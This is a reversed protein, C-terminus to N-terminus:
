FKKWHMFALMQTFSRKGNFNERRNSGFAFDDRTETKLKPLFGREVLEAFKTCSTCLEMDFINEKPVGAKLLLSINAQALSLSYHWPSLQFLKKPLLRVSNKEISRFFNARKRDVNYCCDRIHPGLIFYIESPKSGFNKALLSIAELSIGTGKWGSHLVGFAKANKDYLFIPMCDAVLVAPVFNENTTIIGDAETETSFSNKSEFFLVRKSHVQVASIALENPIQLKQFLRYRNESKARPNERRMNGAPLLSIYCTPFFDGEGLTKFDEGFIEKFEFSISNM